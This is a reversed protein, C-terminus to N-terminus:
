HLNAPTHEDVGTQPEWHLLDHAFYVRRPQLAHLRAISDLFEARDWATRAGRAPEAEPDIFEAVTYAAQGGLIVPGESDDIVLSQHGPTHGPTPVIRLGPLVEEEGDVVRLEAGAFDIREPICYALEARREYDRRHVYTPIRPLAPNGGCHDYHLHCNVVADIDAINVSIAALADHLSRRTVPALGADLAHPEGLGTDFLVPGRPHTLLFGHVPLARGGMPTGHPVTLEGLDLRAIQYKGGTRLRGSFM